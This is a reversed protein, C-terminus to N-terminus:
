SLTALESELKIRLARAAAADPDLELTKEIYRQAEPFNRLEYNCVALNYTTNTDPPHSEYSQEFFWLSEKYFEIEHLLVGLHFALDRTEGLSYYNEWIKQAVRLLERKQGPSAQPIAGRLDNYVSFLIESDWGGFRLRAFVGALGVSSVFDPPIHGDLESLSKRILYLDEPNLRELYEGAAAEVRPAVPTEAFGCLGTVLKLSADPAASQFLAGDQDRFFQRIAHYNVMLSFCGHLVLDPESNHLLDEERAFGKDASLLLLRGRALENFKQLVALAGVPFVFVTDSLTAEYRALLRNLEPEQYYNAVDEIPYYNYHLELRSFAAADVPGEDAEPASSSVDVRGEFLRGGRVLFVDNRLSDFCYNAIVAVPNADLGDSSPCPWQVPRELANWDLDLCAFELLGSDVFPALREHARWFDVNAPVLDTMIYRISGPRIFFDPQCKQEITLAKSFVQLFYFAFRGSGAALEFIRVPLDPNYDSLRRVERLWDLALRAYAEALFPHSTIYQPVVGARWADIGRQQFFRRQMEWLLCESFRRGTELVTRGPERGNAAAPARPADRVPSEGTRDMVHDPAHDPNM